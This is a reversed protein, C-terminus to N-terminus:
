NEKDKSSLYKYIKEIDDILIKNLENEIKIRDFNDELGSLHYNKQKLINNVSVLNNQKLLDEIDTKTLNKAKM